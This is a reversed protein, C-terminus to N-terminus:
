NIILSGVRKGDATIEYKVKGVSSFTATGEGNTERSFTTDGSVLRVDRGALFEETSLKMLSITIVAGTEALKKQITIEISLDQHPMDQRIAISEDAKREHGRVAGYQPTLTLLEGTHRVLDLLDDKAKLVIELFDTAATAAPKFQSFDLGLDAPTALKKQITMLKSLCNDCTELHKEVLKLPDKSLSNVAYALLSRDSVCKGSSNNKRQNKMGSEVSLERILRDDEAMLQSVDDKCKECGSLHRLIESTLAEDLEHEVFKELTEKDPCKFM